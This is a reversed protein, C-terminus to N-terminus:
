PAEEIVAVAFQGGELGTILYKDNATTRQSAVQDSIETDVNAFFSGSNTGDLSGISDKYDGNLKWNGILKNTEPSGQMISTLEAVSLVKRYFRVDRIKGNWVENGGDYGSIQANETNNFELNNLASIDRPTPEAVANIYGIANGDRDYTAAVFYWTNVSLAAGGFDTEFASTGDVRFFSGLKNDDRVYFRIRDTGGAKEKAFIAHHGADTKSDINIWATISFDEKGINLIGSNEIVIRDDVGDFIACRKANNSVISTTVDGAAM